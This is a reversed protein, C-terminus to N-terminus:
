ARGWFSLLWLLANLALPLKRFVLDSAILREILPVSLGDRDLAVQIPIQVLLLKEALPRAFM